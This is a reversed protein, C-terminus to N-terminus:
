DLITWQQFEAEIEENSEGDEDIERHGLFHNCLFDRVGVTGLCNDCCHIMCLKSSRDCVMMEM